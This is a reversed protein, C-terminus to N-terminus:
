DGERGGKPKRNKERLRQEDFHQMERVRKSLEVVEAM